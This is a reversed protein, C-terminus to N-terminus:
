GTPGAPPQFAKLLDSAAAARDEPNPEALVFLMTAGEQEAESKVKRFEQRLGHAAMVLIPQPSQHSGRALLMVGGQQPPDTHWPIAAMEYRRRSLGEFVFASM